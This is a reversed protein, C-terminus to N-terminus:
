MVAVAHDSVVTEEGNVFVDHRNRDDTRADGVLDSQIADDSRHNLLQGIRTLSRRADALGPGSSVLKSASVITSSVPEVFEAHSSLTYDTDAVLQTVVVAHRESHASLEFRVDNCIRLEIDYVDRFETDRTEIGEQLDLMDHHDIGYDRAVLGSSTCSKGVQVKRWARRAGDAM